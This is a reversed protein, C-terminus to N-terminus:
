KKDLQYGFLQIGLTFVWEGSVVGVGGGLGGFALLFLGLQCSRGVGASCDLAVAVSGLGVAAQAAPISVEPAWVATVVAVGQVGISAWGVVAAASKISEVQRLQDPVRTPKPLYPSWGFRTKAFSYGYYASRQTAIAGVNPSFGYALSAVYSDPSMDGTLDFHNIPDGPYNYSNTNGGEVADTSLFRGLAAVYQHAGMEITAISGQHEYPKSSAGVWANDATGPLNDPVTSDGTPSIPQGYPDYRYLASRIGAQTATVVIDGHINLYSWTQDGTAPITISVGGPLSLMRSVTGTTGDKVMVPSGGAAYLYYVTTTGTGPGSGPGVTTRSIVRDTADRQYTIQHPRRM